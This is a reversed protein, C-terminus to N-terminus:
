PRLSLDFCINAKLKIIFYQVTSPTLWQYARTHWSNTAEDLIRGKAFMRQDDQLEYQFIYRNHRIPLFFPQSVPVCTRRNTWTEETIAMGVVVSPPLKSLPAAIPRVNSVCDQDRSHSLPARLVLQPPSFFRSFCMFVLTHSLTFFLLSLQNANCKQANKNAKITVCKTFKTNSLLCALLTIIPVILNVCCLLPNEPFLQLITQESLICLFM